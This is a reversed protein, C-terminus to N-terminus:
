GFMAVLLADILSGEYEVMQVLESQLDLEDLECLMSYWIFALHIM